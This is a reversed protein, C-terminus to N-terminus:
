GGVLEGYSAARLRPWDKLTMSWTAKTAVQGCITMLYCEGEKWKVSEKRGSLVRRGSFVRRGEVSCEGEKWQVSEKRGSFLRRGEM